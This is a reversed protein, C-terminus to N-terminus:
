RLKCDPCIYWSKGRRWEDPLPLPPFPFFQQTPNERTGKGKGLFLPCVDYVPNKRMMGAKSGM